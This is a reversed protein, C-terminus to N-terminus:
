RRGKVVGPYHKRIFLLVQDDPKALSVEVEAKRPGVIEVKEVKVDEVDVHDSFHPAMVTLMVEAGAIADFDDMMLRMSDPRIEVTEGNFKAFRRRGTVVELMVKAAVSVQRDEYLRLNNLYAIIADQENRRISPFRAHVIRQEKGSPSVTPRSNVVELELELPKQRNPLALDLWHGTPAIDETSDFVLASGSGSLNTIRVPVIREGGVDLNAPLNVNARYMDRQVLPKAAQAAPGDADPSVSGAAEDAEAAQAVSGDMVVSPHVASAGAADRGALM